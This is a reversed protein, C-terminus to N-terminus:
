FEVKKWHNKNDYNNWIQTENDTGIMFEKENLLIM